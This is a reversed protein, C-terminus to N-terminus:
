LFDEASVNGSTSYGMEELRRALNEAAKKPGDAEAQPIRQVPRAAGAAEWREPEIAPPAFKGGQRPQTQSHHTPQTEPAPGGAYLSAKPAAAPQQDPVEFLLEAAKAIKEAIAKATFKGKAVGSALFVSRRRMQEKVRGGEMLEALSGEGLLSKFKEPLSAFGADVMADFDREERKAFGEKLTKNEDRLQKVTAFLTRMKPDWSEADELDLEDAAQRPQPESQPPAAPQAQPARRADVVSQRVDNRQVAAMERALWERTEVLSKHLEEPTAAEVAVPDFGYSMAEKVHRPKHKSAQPAPAAPAPTAVPTPELATDDEADFLPNATPIPTQSTPLPETASAAAM